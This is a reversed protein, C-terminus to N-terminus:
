AAPRKQKIDSSIFQEGNVLSPSTQWRVICVCPDTHSLNPCCRNGSLAMGSSFLVRKMTRNELFLLAYLCAHTRPARLPLPAHHRDNNTTTPSEELEIISLTSHNPKYAMM